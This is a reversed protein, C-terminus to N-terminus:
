KEVRSFFYGEAMAEASAADGSGEEEEEEEEEEVGEQSGRSDL